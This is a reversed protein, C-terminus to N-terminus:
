FRFPLLPSTAKQRCRSVEKKPSHRNESNGRTLVFSPTWKRRKHQPLVSLTPRVHGCLGPLCPPPPQQPIILGTKLTSAFPFVLRRWVQTGFFKPLSPSTPHPEQYSSQAALPSLTIGSRPLCHFSLPRKITWVSARYTQRQPTFLPTDGNYIESGPAMNHTSIQRLASTAPALLLSPL